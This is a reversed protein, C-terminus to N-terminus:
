RLKGRVIELTIFDGNTGRAHFLVGSVEATRFLMHITSDTKFFKASPSYIIYSKGDLKYDVTRVIYLNASMLLLALWWAMRSTLAIGGSTGELQM